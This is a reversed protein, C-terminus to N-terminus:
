TVSVMTLFFDYKHIKRKLLFVDWLLVLFLSGLRFTFYTSEKKPSTNKRFKAFGFAGLRVEERLVELQHIHEHTSMRRNQVQARLNQIQTQLQEENYTAQFFFM